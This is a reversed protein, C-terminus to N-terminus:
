NAQMCSVVPPANDGLTSDFLNASNGKSWWVYKGAAYRAGSGSIVSAFILDQALGSVPVIALFNPDANIYTVKMRGGTGCDYAITRREFKGATQIKVEGSDAAASFTPTVCLTALAFAVSEIKM